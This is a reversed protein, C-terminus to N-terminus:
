LTLSFYTDARIPLIIVEKSYDDNVLFIPNKSGEGTLTFDDDFLAKAFMYFNSNVYIYNKNKANYFVNHLIGTQPNQYIYNTNSLICRNDGIENITDSLLQKLNIGGHNYKKDKSFKSFINTFKDARVPYIDKTNIFIDDYDKYPMKFIFVGNSLYVENDDFQIISHDAKYFQRAFKAILKTNM